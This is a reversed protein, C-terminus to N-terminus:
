VRTCRRCLICKNNDRVMHVASTDLDYHHSEGVFYNEDAIGLDKSLKQLECDWEKCMIFM